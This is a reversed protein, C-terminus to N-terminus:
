VGFRGRLANFNQKVDAASLARSYIQINSIRGNIYYSSNPVFAIRVKQGVQVAIDGTVTATKVLVNNVYIRMDSGNYVMVMNYWTNTVFPYSVDNAGVWGTTGTTGILCRITNSASFGLQWQGDKRLIAAESLPLVAFLFWGSLTVTKNFNLSTNDIIEAYDNTGDFVISGSNASNLTPGNLLTANNVGTLDAWVNGSGSYSKRNGADLYTVLGGTVISPGHILSM